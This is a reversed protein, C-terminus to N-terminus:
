CLGPCSFGRSPIDQLPVKNTLERCPLWRLATVSIVFIHSLLSFNDLYCLRKVGVEEMSLILKSHILTFPIVSLLLGTKGVTM